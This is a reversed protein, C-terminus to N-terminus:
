PLLAFLFGYTLNVPDAGPVTPLTCKAPDDQSLAALSAALFVANPDGPAGGFSGSRPLMSPPGDLPSGIGHKTAKHTALYYKNCFEKQCLECYAEPNFPKGKEAAGEGSSLLSAMAESGGVEAKVGASEPVQLM